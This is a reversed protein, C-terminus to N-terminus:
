AFAEKSYSCGKKEKAGHGFGEIVRFEGEEINMNTSLYKGVDMSLQPQKV